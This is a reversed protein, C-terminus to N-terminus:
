WSRYPLGNLGTGTSKSYVDFVDRGPKPDEAPSAYSRLGWTDAAPRGDAPAMPDAPLSRLLYHRAALPSQADPAGDVLVALNPPYGTGGADRAIRGEDVYRKYTDLADRIVRLNRRLDEEKNRKASLEALPMGISALVSLIAVVVLLEVLSFGKSESQDSSV